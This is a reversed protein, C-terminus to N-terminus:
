YLIPDGPQWATRNYYKRSARERQRELLVARLGRIMEKLEADTKGEAWREARERTTENM